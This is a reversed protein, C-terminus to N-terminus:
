QNLHNNKHYLFATIQYMIITFSKAFTQSEHFPKLFSYNNIRCNTMDVRVLLGSRKMMILGQIKCYEKL